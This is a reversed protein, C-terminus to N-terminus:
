AAINNDIITKHINKFNHYVGFKGFHELFFKYGDEAIIIIKENMHPNILIGTDRKIEDTLEDIILEVAYPYDLKEFLYMGVWYTVKSTDIFTVDLNYTKIYYAMNDAVYQQIDLIINGREKLDFIATYELDKKFKGNQKPVLMKHIFKYITRNVMIVFAEAETLDKDIEELFSM